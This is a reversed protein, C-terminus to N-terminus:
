LLTKINNIGSHLAEEGIGGVPVLITLLLSGCYLVWLHLRESLVLILLHLMQPQMLRPYVVSPITRAGFKVKM